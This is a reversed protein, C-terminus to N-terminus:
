FTLMKPTCTNSTLSVSGSWITYGSSQDTIVYNVTQSTSGTLTQTISFSGSQGCTPASSFYVNSPSSGVASGNISCKINAYGANALHTATQQNYWFVIYASYTCSGDDKTADANFNTANKDTCGKNKSCASIATAIVFVIIIKIFKMQLIKM